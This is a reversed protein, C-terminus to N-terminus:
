KPEPRKWKQSARLSEPLLSHASRLSPHWRPLSPRCYVVIDHNASQVAELGIVPRHSMHRSTTISRPLAVGCRIFGFEPEQHKRCARFQHESHTLSPPAVASETIHACRPRRVRGLWQYQDRKPCWWAANLDSSCVDSSWDRKSRTHRRRSS